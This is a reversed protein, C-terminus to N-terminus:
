LEGLMKEIRRYQNESYACSTDDFAKFNSLYSRRNKSFLHDNLRSVAVGLSFHENFLGVLNCVLTLNMGWANKRPSVRNLLDMLDKELCVKKIFIEWQSWRGDGFLSKLSNTNDLIKGIMAEVMKQEEAVLDEMATERKMPDSPTIVVKRGDYGMTRGFFKKLLIPFYQNGTVSDQIAICLPENEFPETEHGKEVANILRTYVVAMVAAAFLKSSELNYSERFHSQLQGYVPVIMYERYNEKQRLDELIQDSLYWISFVDPGGEMQAMKSLIPSWQRFLDVRLYSDQMRSFDINSSDFNM